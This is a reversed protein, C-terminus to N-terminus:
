GPKREPRLLMQCAAGWLLGGGHAWWATVGVVAQGVTAVLLFLLLPGFLAGGARTFVRRSSWLLWVGVVAYVGGSAGLVVVPGTSLVLELANGVIAGGAFVVLMRGSGAKRELPWGFVLLLWVNALAHWVDGHAVWGVALRWWQGRRLSVSGVALDGTPVGLAFVAVILLAVTVVVLPRRGPVKVWRVPTSSSPNVFGCYLGVSSVTSTGM